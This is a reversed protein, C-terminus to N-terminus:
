RCSSDIVILSSSLLVLDVGKKNAAIQAKLDAINDDPRRSGSCEPDGELHPCFVLLLLSLLVTGPDRPIKSPSNLFDLVAETQFQGNM